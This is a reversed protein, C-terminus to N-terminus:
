LEVWENEMPMFVERGDIDRALLERSDGHCLIVREPDCDDIFRLLENHDAHASFDFFSVECNVKVKAGFLDIMGTDRLMRGNTGEVQYGTLLIGSKPDDKLAEVYRLVPGGDMMGSTTLIVEGKLAKMRGTESRVKRADKMVKRFKRANRLFEPYGRYIRNVEKGMGDLWVEFNKKRLLLLMEQTRGVAFAPLIVKGGRNVIERIKNLFDQELQLRDPHRRGAYTSELVLTDCKVPKAGWVLETNLTHIDGSFLITQDNVVEYMTAGPIHGASHSTIELAGERRTEGFRMDRFNREAADLDEDDYPFSFGELNTVKISDRFLLNCTGWTAKTAFVDTNHRTCLWPVMGSHDIHAHSLYATGVPPAKIPYEPPKTPLYGYDFLTIHHDHELLMGLSGVKSAGGLFRVRM